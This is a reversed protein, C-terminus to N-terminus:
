NNRLFVRTQLDLPPNGARPRTSAAIEIAAIASPDPVPDSTIANGSGDLYTFVLGEGPGDLGVIIPEVDGSGVARGLGWGDGFQYLGYTVQAMARVPAGPNVPILFNGDVSMGGTLMELEVLQSSPATLGGPRSACAVSSAGTSKVQASLWMDDKETTPDGDAYVAIADGVRIQGQASPSWTHMKRDSPHRECVFGIGRAARVVVEDSEASVIDTLGAMGGATSVERLESELVGLATRLADHDLVANSTIRYSREQVMLSQYAAGLVVTGLVAVILLEVLTFGARRTEIM